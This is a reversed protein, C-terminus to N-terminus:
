ASSPMRSKQRDRPSPSTYLLCSTSIAFGAAALHEVVSPGEWGLSPHAAVGAPKDVVVIDSDDHIIRMGEVIQPTISPTAVPDCLDVDLMQGTAVRVSARSVQQGDLFVGGDEILSSIRSRSVGSMRAAAVDVREGDLGDPVLLVSM